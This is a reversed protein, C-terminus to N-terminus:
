KEHPRVPMAKPTVIDAGQLGGTPSQIEFVVVFQTVPNYLRMRSVIPEMQEHVTSDRRQLEDLSVFVSAIGDQVLGDAGVVGVSGATEARDVVFVAGRGQADYGDMALICAAEGSRGLYAKYACEWTQQSTVSAGKFSPQQSSMTVVAPLPRARSALQRQRRPPSPSSACACQARSLRARLRVPAPSAFAM